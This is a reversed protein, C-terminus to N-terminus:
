KVKKRGKNEKKEYKQQIHKSKNKNSNYELLTHLIQESRSYIKNLPENKEAQIIM